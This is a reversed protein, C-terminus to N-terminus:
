VSFAEVCMMSACKFVVSLTVSAVFPTMSFGILTFCAFFFRVLFFAITAAVAAGPSAVSLTVFMNVLVSATVCGSVFVNTLVSAMVSGPVFMNVFAVISVDTTVDTSVDTFSSVVSEIIISVIVCTVVFPGPSVIALAGEVVGVTLM